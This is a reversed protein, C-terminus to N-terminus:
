RRLAAKLARLEEEVEEPSSVTSAVEAHLLEGYLDLMRRVTMKLAGETMSLKQALEAHSLTRKEGTLFIKLEEFLDGKGKTVYDERLRTLVQDLLKIAWQKLFFEEPSLDSAALQLYPQEATEDNISIFESQGGRKQTHADRWEKKLFNDLCGLLFSRFKGKTRDVARLFDKALLRNFFEQTLDEADHPGYGQRRVFFYLPQWYIRCLNGLAADAAPSQGDKASLVVSWHTTLFCKPPDCNESESGFTAGM